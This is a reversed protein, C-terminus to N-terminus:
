QKIHIFIIINAFGIKSKRNHLSSKNWLCFVDLSHIKQYSFHFSSTLSISKELQLNFSTSTTPRIGNRQIRCVYVNTIPLVTTNPNREVDYIRHISLSSPSLYKGHFMRLLNTAGKNQWEFETLKTITKRGNQWIGHINCRQSSITEQVSLTKNNDNWQILVWQLESQEMNWITIIPRQPIGENKM